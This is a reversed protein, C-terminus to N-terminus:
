QKGRAIELADDFGVAGELFLIASELGDGHEAVPDPSLAERHGPEAVLELDRSLAEDALLVQLEDEPAAPKRDFGHAEIIRLGCRGSDPGNILSGRVVVVAPRRELEIDLVPLIQRIRARCM